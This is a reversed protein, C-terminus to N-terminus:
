QHNNEYKNMANALYKLETSSFKDTNSSSM